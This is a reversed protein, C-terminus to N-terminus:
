EWFLRGNNLKKYALWKDFRDQYQWFAVDKQLDTWLTENICLKGLGNLDTFVNYEVTEDRYIIIIKSFCDPATRATHWKYKSPKEDPTKSADVFQDKTM